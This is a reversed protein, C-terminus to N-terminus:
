RHTRSYRHKVGTPFYSPDGHPLLHIDPLQYDAPVYNAFESNLRILHERISYAADKIRYDSAIEGPMLEVTIRLHKNLAEDDVTELVFKGTVWKQIGPQELGVTVNEPFINAGFYSVTFDSRGFVYVFPLKRAYELIESEVYLGHKSIIEQMKVWSIVGGRDLINYRILPVGNDGSFLLQGNMEEFYRSRPDYQVLTPLRSEGFLERAIAPHKALQRRISISIPTENGLVGGDATGYLSASDFCLDRSGLRDAVLSRWEESFVEGAMVLKIKFPKWDIGKAIGTDIVEKLFPPYGLLVVQDYLPGLETVVRFIEEPKNGPTLVTLPYGKSILNRCCNITYMGGVWTGLAFCVVALTRRKDCQFSDVFVQEFRWTVDWEDAQSRPWFCPTGTSGSSVAVAHIQNIDGNKIRDKLPYQLVYNEKTMAPLSRFAQMDVVTELDIKHESLFSKYAPVTSAVHHLTSLLPAEPTELATDSMWEDLSTNLYRDQASLTQSKPTEAM